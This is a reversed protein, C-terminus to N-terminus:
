RAGAWSFTRRRVWAARLLVCLALAWAGWVLALWPVSGFTATGGPTLLVPLQGKRRLSLIDMLVAVTSHVLFGAWISRTKSALSGLVVGAVLAAAVELYPKGFHIMAYPVAMSFIAGAGFARTVRLWWGRFFIELGLFQLLYVGEWALFDLWSRGATKCIPYFRGFDPQRAALALIPIMVAVCLAYVWAHARLGRLRLGMDLVSDSRYILKWLCLPAVYVLFRTSGWWLRGFLDAYRDLRALAIPADAFTVRLRTAVHAEYFISRGYYEQLLLVLMAIALGVLARHDMQNRAAFSQRQALADSELDFWTKRFVFWVVPALALLLPIPLAWKVAPHELWAIV